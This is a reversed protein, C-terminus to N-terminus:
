MVNKVISRRSFPWERNLKEYITKMFVVDFYAGWAALISKDGINKLTFREFESLAAHINPAVLLEEESIGNVKMAEPNRYDSIPHILTEFVFGTSLDENIIISGIQIVDGKRADSDTCEIDIAVFKNPLKM